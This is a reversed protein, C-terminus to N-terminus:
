EVGAKQSLVTISREMVQWYRKVILKLVLAISVKFVSIVNETEGFDWTNLKWPM